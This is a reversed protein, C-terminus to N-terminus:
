KITMRLLCHIDSKWSSDILLPGSSIQDRDTYHTVGAKLQVTWLHNKSQLRLTTAFRQGHGYLQQFGYTQFLSPEYLYLRSDYSNTRFLAAFLSLRLRQDLTTYDTRPAIVFGFSSSAVAPEHYFHLFTSLNATWHPSLTHSYSARLRHSLHRCDSQEKSKIAYRLLLTRGRRPEYTAQLLGEWGTSSQTMTYRPWPSYFYDVLARLAFPGVRDADLQLTIGSENQVRSNEGYASAYPSFYYKGYYRQIAALQTNSNFRWAVKNLTSLAAPRSLSSSDEVSFGGLPFSLATEGSAYLHHSRFGYDVGLVGFQYGEPMIQRYLQANQHFQHDYYQYLATLGFSLSRSSSGSPSGDPLTASSVKRLPLTTALHLAATSSGLTNKHNLESQTRHLGTTNITQMTNDAAITADLKRYSYLATLQWHSGLALTAAAGRLFNVEDASRHPRIGGSTRWLSMSLKGFRLGNNLVLGQGFGAKYDGVIVTKLPGIDRLMVHGGYSDWLPTTSNFMQEGADTEARLGADLHRGQQWTYRLRNAIGQKWPWGARNYLPIDARIIAEHRAHGWWNTDARAPETTEAPVHCVLHLWERQRLSLERIFRLEGLSRMPGNLALYDFIADIANEDLFPLTLLQERTATNLNLPREHLEELIEQQAEWQQEDEGEIAEEAMQQLLEDWSAESQALAPSPFLLFLLLPLFFPLGVPVRWSGHHLSTLITDRRVFRPVCKGYFANIPRM